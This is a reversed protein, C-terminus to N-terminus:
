TLMIYVWAESVDLAPKGQEVDVNGDSDSDSTDDFGMFGGIKGDIDEGGSLTKTM